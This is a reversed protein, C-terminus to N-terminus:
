RGPFNVRQSWVTTRAANVAVLKDVPIPSSFRVDYVRNKVDYWRQFRGKAFVGIRSISGDTFGTLNTLKTSRGSATQRSVTGSFDLVRHASQPCGAVDISFAEAGARKRAVAFCPPRGVRRPIKLLVDGSSRGLIIPTSTAGVGKLIALGRNDFVLGTPSVGVVGRREFRTHRAGSAVSPAAIALLGAVAAAVAVIAALRGSRASTSANM